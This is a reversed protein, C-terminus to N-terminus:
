SSMAGTSGGSKSGARAERVGGTEVTTVHDGGFLNDGLLCHPQHPVELVDCHLTPGTSPDGPLHVVRM